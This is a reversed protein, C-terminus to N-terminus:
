AWAKKAPVAVWLTVALLAVLAWPLMAANALKLMVGGVVGGGAIALNWGVVVLSQGLDQQEGSRRAVATQILTAAGGFGLGWVAVATVLVAQSSPWLAMVVAALLFLAMGLVILARMWRDILAGTIAISVVSSVGFLLLLRDLMAQSGSLVVFPAIYTYLVNHALVALLMVAYVAVLGPRALVDRLTGSQQPPVGPVPPLAARSWGALAVSLLSMLGFVWRWGILQSLWTGAPIGISMALPTGLMAVAIARGQLQPAVMRSAYGALLAWLLGAAVGGLFRSVLMLVYADTWAMVSNVLAFGLIAALLLPRRPLHSTLKVMPIATLLSGLAYVTTLQGVLAESLGLDRSMAPLLGAVICETLVTIFAGCALALLGLMPLRGPTPECADYPLAKDIASM